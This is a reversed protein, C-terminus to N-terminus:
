LSQGVSDSSKAGVREGRCINFDFGLRNNHIEAFSVHIQSKFAHAVAGAAAKEVNAADALKQVAVEVEV